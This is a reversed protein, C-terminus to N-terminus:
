YPNGRSDFAGELHNIAPPEVSADVEIVDFRYGRRNGESLADYFRAVKVITQRKRATVSLHPATQSTDQRTKVEVIAVLRGEPVARSAILDVEGIECTFNREEITWGQEELYRAALDEGRAGLDLREETM